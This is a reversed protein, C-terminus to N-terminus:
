SRRPGRFPLVTSPASASSAPADASQRIRALQVVTGRGQFYGEPLGALMEIDHSALGLHRPIAELPMVNEDVLLDITRRLL